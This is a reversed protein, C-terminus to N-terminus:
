ALPTSYYQLVTCHVSYRATSPQSYNYYSKERNNHSRSFLFKGAAAAILFITPRALLRPCPPRAPDPPLATGHGAQSGPRSNSGPVGEWRQM